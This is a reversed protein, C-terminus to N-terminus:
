SWHGTASRFQCCFGSWRGFEIAIILTNPKYGFLRSTASGNETNVLVVVEQGLQGSMVEVLLHAFGVSENVTYTDHDLGIIVVAYATLSSNFNFCSNRLSVMMM